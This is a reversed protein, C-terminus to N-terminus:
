SPSARLRKVPDDAVPSGTLGTAVRIEQEDLSEAALLARALADLKDRNAALLREAERHCEEVIRRVEGDILESTADSYPRQQFAPPLGEDQPAVFSIPGLRESMGWRLVMRRAIETVQQLDNEAGTTTVGYVLHEAARGGLASTIRARLYDEGYSSRDDAPIQYTAGLATGRPVISVRRVPDSGPVLLGLLAHGSEHYATRERDAPTLLVHRAPGLTIKQLAEAFDEVRVADAAKRAALLAAENVLNRLDAGVLGPTEAAIRELSVDPALPVKRTHVALIAARGARDPRQVVVRRDFRGPRLLAPDLVDARNTAALVIIGERPDFGDMETLIQNLTQEREDHGGLTVGSGRARGIADLEDIFIISPAAERAQQFLDRVRAAGVGVIMEIFESASLSFFPVGAQGAIARALLTKGTGPAGVLLVGKPMTGGLRQYKAPNKLFDVIEVLEAEAEDIGAVDDFTVKPQEESYRKARSRGLGFVGAGGAAAARRSIWIFAGILLLTPGFGILLKFVSSADEDRADIVVGQKELLAELGADAFAPRQTVFRKSTHPENPDAVLWAPLKPESAPRPQTDRTPYTVEAKFSGRISDGLGVVDEVNGSEVQQKFFTYPITISSPEPFCARMLLFNATVVIMVIMWWPQPRVNPTRPVAEKSTKPAASPDQTPQKAM